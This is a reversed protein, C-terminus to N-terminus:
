GSIWAYILEAQRMYKSDYEIIVRQKSFTHVLSSQIVELGGLLAAQLLRYKLSSRFSVISLLFSLSSLSLLQPLCSLMVQFLPM